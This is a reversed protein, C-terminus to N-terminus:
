EGYVMIERTNIQFLGLDNDMDGGRIVGIRIYKGSVGGMDFLVEVTAKNNRWPDRGNETDVSEPATYRSDYCATDVKTWNVGDDSVYVDHAQPFGKLDGSSYGMASFKKVEGFNLTILATYRSSDDKEGNINYTDRDFYMAAMITSGWHGNVLNWVSNTVGADTSTGYAGSKTEDLHSIGIVSVGYGIDAIDAKQADTLTASNILPSAIADKDGRIGSFTKSADLKYTMWGNGTVKSNRFLVSILKDSPRQTLMVTDTKPAESTLYPKTKLYQDVLTQIGSMDNKSQFVDLFNTNGNVYYDNIYDLMDFKEHVTKDFCFDYPQGIPSEGTIACYAMLTTIYGALPNTHFGDKVIFTKEMYYQEANPVKYTGQMIGNVLGGWDAIIM